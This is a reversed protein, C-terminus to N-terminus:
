VPVEIAYAAFPYDMERIETSSALVLKVMFCIDLPHMERALTQRVGGIGMAGWIMLDAAQIVIVVQCVPSGVRILLAPM